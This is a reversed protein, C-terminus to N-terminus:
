RDVVSFKLIKDTLRKREEDWLPWLLDLLGGIGCTLSSLVGAVIIRIISKGIGLPQGTADDILKINMKDKGITSGTNGQRVIVNWIAFGVSGLTAVILMVIGLNENVASLVVALVFLVAAVVTVIVNDIIYAIARTGWQAPNGGGANYSPQAYAGSGAEPAAGQATQPGGVWQGGDWYRQTGVPDGQAYYWGPQQAGSDTM